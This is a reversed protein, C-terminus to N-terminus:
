ILEPSVKETIIAWIYWLVYKILNEYSTDAPTADPCVWNTVQEVWGLLGAWSSQLIYFNNKPFINNKAVWHLLPTQLVMHAFVIPLFRINTLFIVLTESCRTVQVHVHLYVTLFLWISRLLTVLTEILRCVQLSVHTCVTPLFTVFSKCIWTVQLVIHAYVAPLLKTQWFHSWLKVGDPLWFMCMFVFLSFGYAQWCDKHYKEGRNGTYKKKNEGPRALLRDLVTIPLETHRGTHTMKDAARAWSVSLISEMYIIDFYGDSHCLSACTNKKSFKWNPGGPAWSVAIKPELEAWLSSPGWANFNHPFNPVLLGLTSRWLGFLHLKQTQLSALGPFNPKLLVLKPWWPALFCWHIFSFICSKLM